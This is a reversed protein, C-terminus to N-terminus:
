LLKNKIKEVIIAEITEENEETVPYLIDSKDTTVKRIVELATNTLISLNNSNIAAINEKDLKKVNNNLM